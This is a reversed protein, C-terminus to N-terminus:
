SMVHHPKGWFADIKPNGWKHFSRYILKLCWCYDYLEIGFTDPIILWSTYHFLIPTNKVGWSNIAQYIPNKIVWNTWQSTPIQQRCYCFVQISVAYTPIWDGFPSHHGMKGCTPRSFVAIGGNKVVRRISHDFLFSAGRSKWIKHWKDGERRKEEGRWLNRHRLDQQDFCRKENSQNLRSCKWRFGGYKTTFVM